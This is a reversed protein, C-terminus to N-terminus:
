SIDNTINKAEKAITKLMGTPSVYFGCFYLGRTVEVGSKFPTGQEDMIDSKVKLFDNVKPQYGTALVIADYHEKAGNTFYVQNSEFKQIGPRVHIKGQKIYAVTGIDILPVRADKQVQTLPGYPLRRLGFNAIDGYILRLIPAMLIDTFRSPFKLALPTISLIPMGFLEKPIINVPSRVSIHTTADNEYLDMAIEGGSNGFGVVLVKKGKFPAGNKYQTSHIIKGGFEKQGPWKPIIPERTYGTAIIVKQSQYKNDSTETQWSGNNRDVSIVHQGFHPKLDFHKAYAELYDVVQRRSPYRPYNKPYSLFPLESHGKDTHLHLRDYHTRWVAGVHNAKELIIFPINARTLCAGVALGAPGAGIIIADTKIQPM